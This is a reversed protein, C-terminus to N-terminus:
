EPKKRLLLSVLQSCAERHGERDLAPPFEVVGDAVLAQFISYATEHQLIIFLQGGPIYFRSSLADYDYLKAVIGAYEKAISKTLRDVKDGGFIM